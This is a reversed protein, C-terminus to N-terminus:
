LNEFNLTAKTVFFLIWPYILQEIWKLSRTCCWKYLAFFTDLFSFGIFLGLNGGVSSIFSSTDLIQVQQSVKVEMIPYNFFLSTRNDMTEHAVKTTKSLNELNAQAMMSNKDYSLTETSYSTFQCPESINKLYWWSNRRDLLWM